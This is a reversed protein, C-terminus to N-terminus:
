IRRSISNSPFQENLCFSFTFLTKKERIMFEDATIQGITHYVDTRDGSIKLSNRRELM